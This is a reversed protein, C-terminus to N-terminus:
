WTGMNMHMHMMNVDRNRYGYAYVYPQSVWWNAAQEYAVAHHLAGPGPTLRLLASAAWLKFPCLGFGASLVVQFM